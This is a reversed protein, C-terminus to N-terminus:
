HVIKEEHSLFLNGVLQFLCLKLKNYNEMCIINKRNSASRIDMILIYIIPISTTVDMIIYQRQSHWNIWARFTNEKHLFHSKYKGVIKYFQIDCKRNFVFNCRSCCPVIFIDNFILDTNILLLFCILTHYIGAIKQAQSETLM